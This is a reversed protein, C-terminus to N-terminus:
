PGSVEEWAAVGQVSCKKLHENEVGGGSGASEDENEAGVRAGLHKEPISTKCTICPVYYTQGQGVQAGLNETDEEAHM